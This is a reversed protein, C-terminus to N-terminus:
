HKSKKKIIFQAKRKLWESAQINSEANLTNQIKESDFNINTYEKAFIRSVQIFRLLSKKVLKSMLKERQVWKEFADFFSFLYDEYSEDILYLDFYVQLNLMKSIQLFYKNKFEQKILINLCSELDEQYYFTHAKAWAQAENKIELDLKQGYIEIVEKTFVFDQKTNSTAVIASFSMYPLIGNELLFGQKLGIKYLPLLETIDFHGARILKITDNRLSAFHIKKDKKNLEEYDKLFKDRLEFYQELMKDETYAFRIRYFDIAPHEIGQSVTHWKKLETAIEHNENKLIKNRFIKENIIAAQELLYVLELQEGMKTITVGGDKKLPHQSPHHYVWRHFRLLDLHNEWEKQPIAELRDIEQYTEKFFLNDLHRHQWETSLLDKQRYADRDIKQFILFKELALYADSLINNMRRDSFKGNPLIRKFLKEKDLKPSDFTPSYSKIKELLRVSVKNTNCWPSNLFLEFSKLEATTLTKLLRIFKSKAITM